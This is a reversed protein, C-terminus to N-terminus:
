RGVGGVLGFWERQRQWEAPFPDLARALDLAPPQRGDLIAEVLDPALTTLRLVRSLYSLALREAKGIERVTAYRGEDLLRKWRFARGLAKILAPDRRNRIPALIESGDPALILKRGGFKRMAFPVRLVLTEGDHHLVRASM